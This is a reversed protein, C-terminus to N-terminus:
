RRRAHERGAGVAHEPTGRGLVLAPQRKATGWKMADTHRATPSQPPGGGIRAFGRVVWGVMYVLVTIVALGVLVALPNNGVADFGIRWFFFAADKVLSYKDNWFHGWPQYVRLLLLWIVCAFISM